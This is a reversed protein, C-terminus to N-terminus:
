SAPEHESRGTQQPHHTRRAEAADIPTFIICGVRDRRRSIANSLALVECGGDGRVAAVLMSFGLFGWLVVDGNAPTAVGAAVSLGFLLALLSCAVPPCAGLDRVRAFPAYREFGLLTLRAAPALVLAAVVMAGMDWWSLGELAIPVALATVGVLVRSTTGIPGIDRTRSPKRDRQTFSVTAM